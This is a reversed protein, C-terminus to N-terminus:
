YLVRRQRPQRRKRPVLVPEASRKAHEEDFAIHWSEEGQGAATKGRMAGWVGEFEFGDTFAKLADQAESFDSTGDLESYWTEFQADAGPAVFQGYMVRMGDRQMEECIAFDAINDIFPQLIDDGNSTVGRIDAFLEEGTESRSVPLECWAHVLVKYHKSELYCVRINCGCQRALYSAFTGCHGSMFPSAYKGALAYAREAAVDFSVKRDGPTGIDDLAFIGTQFSVYRRRFVM